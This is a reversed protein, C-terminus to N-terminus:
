FSPRRLLNSSPFSPTAFATSGQAADTVPLLSLEPHRHSLRRRNTLM